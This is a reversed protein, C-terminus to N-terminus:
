IPKNSQTKLANKIKTTCIYHFSIKITNKRICFLTLKPYKKKIMRTERKKEHDYIYHKNIFHCIKTEHAKIAPYAFDHM